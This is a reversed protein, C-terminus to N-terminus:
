RIPDWNDSWEEISYKQITKIKERQDKHDEIAKSAFSNLIELRGKIAGALKRCLNEGGFLYHSILRNAVFDDYVYHYDRRDGHHYCTGGPFIYKKCGTVALAYNMFNEGGGYIGLGKPWGGLSDYIERSIMMGCTSMCPVEFPDFDKILPLGTFSYTYFCDQEIVFKYILKHWELIKYTLPLHFTGIERYLKGEEKCYKRKYATYMDAIGHTVVHADLFFLIDGKSAEVGVRKSQWHSLRDEYKIYKLWDNGKACAKIAEGSRNEYTPQISKHMEYLDEVVLERKASINHLAMLQKKASNEAQERAQKCWNDVAIIEFDVSNKIQQALSQITFLAQPHEGVFPIIISLM